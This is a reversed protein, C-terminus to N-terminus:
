PCGKIPWVSISISSDGKRDWSTSKRDPPEAPPTHVSFWGGFVCMHSVCVCVDKYTSYINLVCVFYSCKLNNGLVVPLVVRLICRGILALTVHPCISQSALLLSALQLRAYTDSCTLATLLSVLGSPGTWQFLLVQSISSIKGKSYIYAVTNLLQEPSM